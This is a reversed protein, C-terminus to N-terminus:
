TRRRSRPRNRRPRWRPDRGRAGAAHRHARSPRHGRTSRAARPLDPMLQDNAIADGQARADRRPLRVVAFGREKAVLRRSRTQLEDRTQVFSVVAQDILEQPEAKVGFNRLNDAYIEPPLRNTTRARPLLETRM